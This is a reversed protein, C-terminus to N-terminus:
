GTITVRIAKAILYKSFKEKILDQFFEFLSNYCEMIIKGDFSLSIGSTYLKMSGWGKGKIWYPDWYPDDQFCEYKKEKALNIIADASPQHSIDDLIEQKHKLQYDGQQFRSNYFENLFPVLETELLEPKLSYSIYEDNEEKNFVETPAYNQEVFESAAELSDFQKNAESKRFVMETTIGIALYRGM